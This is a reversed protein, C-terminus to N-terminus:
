QSPLFDGVKLHSLNQALRSAIQNGHRKALWLWQGLSGCQLAPGDTYFQQTIQLTKMDVRLQFYHVYLVMNKSQFRLM